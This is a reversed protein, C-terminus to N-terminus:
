IKLYVNLNTALDTPVFVSMINSQESVNFPGNLAFIIAITANNSNFDILQSYNCGTQNNISVYSVLLSSSNFLNLMSTKNQCKKCPDCTLGQFNNLNVIQYVDSNINDSQLSLPNKKVGCLQIPINDSADNNDRIKM